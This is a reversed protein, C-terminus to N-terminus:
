SEAVPESGTARVRNVVAGQTAVAWLYGTVLAALISLLELLGFTVISARPAMRLYLLTLGGLVLQLGAGIRFMAETSALLAAGAAVLLTWGYDVDRLPFGYVRPMVVTVALVIAAILAPGWYASWPQRGSWGFAVRLPRLRRRGGAGSEDQESGGAISVGTLLLIVTTTISTAAVVLMLAIRGTATVGDVTGILGATVFGAGLLALLGFRWGRALVLCIVCGALALLGVRTATIM